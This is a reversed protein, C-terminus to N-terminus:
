AHEKFWWMFCFMLGPTKAISDDLLFDYADKRPIEVVEIAEEDIGGGADIQNTEDVQAYFVSQKSGAFGVATYFSTIPVLKEAEVAYGTEERIEESAIQALSLAKDCIGACLEHTFGDSNSLYVPPRFQKVLVFSDHGKHYILIAVSDHVQAMEWEKKVGEQEYTILQPKVFKPKDLTTLTLNEIRNM